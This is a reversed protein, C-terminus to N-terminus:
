SRCRPSWKRRLNNDGALYLMVLWPRQDDGQFGLPESSRRLPATM